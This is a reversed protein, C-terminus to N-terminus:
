LRGVVIEIVGVQDSNYDELSKGIVCGPQYESSVMSTAVGTTNSSVLCDGKSITGIVQCPVRGLLAINVVNSGDLSSNMLYAPDTSVVGAIKTSYGTTSATVEANGGFELVTGPKYEVDAQYKEALDAYQASTSQAHVMNFPKSSSGINGVASTGGNIIATVGNDSNVTLSGNTSLSSTGSSIFTRIVNATAQYTTNASVVPFQNTGDLSGLSPLQSIKINAM